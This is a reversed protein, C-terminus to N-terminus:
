EEVSYTSLVDNLQKQYDTEQTPEGPVDNLDLQNIIYNGDMKCVDRSGAKGVVIPLTPDNTQLSEYEANTKAQKFYKM